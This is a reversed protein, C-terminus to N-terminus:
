RDRRNVADLLNNYACLACHQRATELDGPYICCEKKIAGHWLVNVINKCTKCPKKM